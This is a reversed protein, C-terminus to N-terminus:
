FFMFMASVRCFERSFNASSIRQYIQPCNGLIRWALILCGLDARCFRLISVQHVVLERFLETICVLHWSLIEPPSSTRHYKEPRHLGEQAQSQRAQPEIKLLNMSPMDPLRRPTTAASLQDSGLCSGRQTDLEGCLCEPWFSIDCALVGHRCM